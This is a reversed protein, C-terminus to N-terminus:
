AAVTVRRTPDRTGGEGFAVASLGAHGLDTPRDGRSRRRGLPTSLSLKADVSVLRENSISTM